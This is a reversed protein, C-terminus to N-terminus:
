GGKGRADACGLPGGHLGPVVGDEDGAAAGADAASQGFGEVGQAVLHDDSAPALLGQVLGGLGVRAHAAWSAMSKGARLTRTLLAPMMRASDSCDWGSSRASMSAMMAVFRSPGKRRVAARSGRSRLCGREVMMLTDEPSAKM